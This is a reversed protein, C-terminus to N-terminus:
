SLGARRCAAALVIQIPDCIERRCQRTAKLALTLATVLEERHFPKRLVDDARWTSPRCRRLRMSMATFLVVPVHPRLAKAERLLAFGDLENM